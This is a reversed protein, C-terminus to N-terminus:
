RESLKRMRERLEGMKGSIYVGVFERVAETDEPLCEVEVKGSGYGLPKFPRYGDAEEAKGHAQLDRLLFFAYPTDLTMGSVDVSIRAREM